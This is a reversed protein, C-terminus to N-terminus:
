RKCSLTQHEVIKLYMFLDICLYLKYMYTCIYCLYIAYIFLIYM